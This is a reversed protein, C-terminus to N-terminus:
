RPDSEEMQDLTQMTIDFGAATAVLWAAVVTFPGPDLRTSAGVAISMAMVGAVVRAWTWWGGRAPPATDDVYAKLWDGYPDDTM